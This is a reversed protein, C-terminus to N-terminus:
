VGDGRCLRVNCLLKERRERLAHTKVAALESLYLKSSRELTFSAALSRMANRDPEMHRALNMAIGFADPDGLPVVVGFQGYGTLWEMSACCNTAVIPLGAALDEFIVSPAGEYLSSLVFVDAQAYFAQVDEVHGAFHVQSRLGLADAREVLTEREPGDGVIVLTDDPWAHRAFAELLILQNKQAVLRGITLFHCGNRSNRALRSGALQNLEAESLAPDPIVSVLHAPLALEREIEDQMPHAIAIFHDLSAGQARLWWRYFPRSLKPMDYRELDNSIKALIPPCSEGLLIKMAVCVVTYTNGPCFVIDVKEMLLFQFLSWVMWITEWTDTAFPERLTRYNLDPATGVSAGRHRGLVIVPDHGADQWQEALRLAVREVGGPEFSHIPIAIKMCALRWEGEFGAHDQRM